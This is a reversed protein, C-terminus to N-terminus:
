TPRSISGSCLIWLSLAIKRYYYMIGELIGGDGDTGGYHEQGSAEKAEEEREGPLREKLRPNSRCSELGFQRRALQERSFHRAISCMM